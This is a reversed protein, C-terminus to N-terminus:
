SAGPRPLTLSEVVASDQYQPVTCGGIAYLRGAAAFLALAHRPVELTPGRSWRRTAADYVLTTAALVAYIKQGVVTTGFTEMPAPM